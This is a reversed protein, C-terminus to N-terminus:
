LEQPCLFVTGGVVAGIEFCLEVKVVAGHAALPYAVVTEVNPFRFSVLHADIAPPM